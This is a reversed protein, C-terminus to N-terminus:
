LVFLAATVFVYAAAVILVQAIRHLSGTRMRRAVRSPPARRSPTEFAVSM